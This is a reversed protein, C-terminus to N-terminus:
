VAIYVCHHLLIFLGVSVYEVFEEIVIVVFYFSMELVFFLTDEGVDFATEGAVTFVVGTVVYGVEFLAM